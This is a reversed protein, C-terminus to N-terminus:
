PAPSLMPGPLRKGRSSSPVRTGPSGQFRPTQLVWGASPDLNGESSPVKTERSSSGVQDWPGAILSASRDGQLTWSRPVMGWTGSQSLPPRPVWTTPPGMGILPWPRRHASPALDDLSRDLDTLLAVSSLSTGLQQRGSTRVLVKIDSPGRVSSTSPGKTELDMSPGPRRHRLPAQRSSAEPYPIDLFRPISAAQRVHDMAASIAIQWPQLTVIDRPAKQGWAARDRSVGTGHYRNVPLGEVVHIM